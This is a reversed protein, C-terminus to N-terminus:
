ENYMFHFGPHIGRIKLEETLLTFYRIIDKDSRNKTATTLISNCDHVYMVYIYKNGKRSTTPFNGCLYSFIKGEKTTIPEVTICYVVNKKINYELDTDPPKEKTFQLGQRKMHLNGMTTNRSKELHKKILKETLGPWTKLFGQKIAKLLSETTPSLIAAYLYQALEPKSTQALIINVLNESQQPGLPVEWMGKKNKINGKIKEEGNKQIYMAQQDVTITCGDDCLVVM